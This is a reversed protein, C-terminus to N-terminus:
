DSGSIQSQRGFIQKELGFSRSTVTLEGGASFSIALGWINIALLVSLGIFAGWSGRRTVPQTESVPQNM